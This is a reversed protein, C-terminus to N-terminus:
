SVKKFRSRATELRRGATARSVGLVTKAEDVSVTNAGQRRYMLSLLSTIQGEIEADRALAPRGTEAPRLPVPAAGDGSLATEHGSRHTEGSHSATETASVPGTTETRGTGLARPTESNDTEAVLAPATRPHPVTEGFGSLDAARTHETEDAPTTRRTEDPGAGNGTGTEGHGTEGPEKTIQHIRWMVWPAIAAVSVILWWLPHGKKDVGVLGAAALHYIANAAVMLILAGAVDRHRRFAQVVYVDIALPLAWAVEAPWGSLKALAFEGSATLVITAGLAVRPGWTNVFNKTREQRAILAQARTVEERTAELERRALRQEDRVRARVQGAEQEAVVVLRAAEKEAATIRESAATEASSIAGAAKAEAISRVRLVDEEAQVRAAELVQQAEGRTDDADQEAERLVEAAQGRAHDLLRAADEEATAVEERARSRLQESDKEAQQRMGTAAERRARADDEAAAVLGAAREKAEEVLHAAHAATADAEAQVRDKDQEAEARVQQARARGAEVIRAAEAEAEAQLKEAAQRRRALTQEAAALDGDAITRVRQVTEEAAAIQEGTLKRMREAQDAATALISDAEAQAKRAAGDADATQRRAQALMTEAETRAAALLQDAEARAATVIAEVGAEPAPVPAPETAATKDAAEGPDVAAASKTATTRTTTTKKAAAKRPQRRTTM